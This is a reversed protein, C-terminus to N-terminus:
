IVAVDDVNVYFGSRGQRLSLTLEVEQTPQIGSFLSPDNLYFTVADLDHDLFAARHWTRTEGNRESSGSDIKLFTAKGTVVM